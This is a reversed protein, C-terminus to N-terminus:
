MREVGTDFLGDPHLKFWRLAPGRETDLVMTPHRPLAQFSTAPAGLIQLNGRREEFAHHIHGFALARVGKDRSLLTILEEGNDLGMADIWPSDTSVPQHHVFVLKHVDPYASLQESLAKLREADLHGHPRGPVTSNLFILRWGALDAGEVLCIREGPLLAQMRDLDDHNGPLCAVPAPAGQLIERLRRYAAEGGNETLDGTAVILEPEFQSALDLVGALCADPDLGHLRQGAEDLLHCDTIQVVTHTTHM